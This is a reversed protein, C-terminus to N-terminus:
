EGDDARGETDEPEDGAGATVTTEGGSFLRSVLFAAAALAVIGLVLSTLIRNRTM